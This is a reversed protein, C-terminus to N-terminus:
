AKAKPAEMSAKAVGEYVDLGAASAETEMRVVTEAEQMYDAFATKMFASQVELVDAPSKCAALKDLLATDQAWRKTMFTASEQAIRSWSALWVEAAKQNAKMLRDLNEPAQAWPNSTFFAEMSNTPTPTM